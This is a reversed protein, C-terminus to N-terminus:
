KASERQTLFLEQLAWLLGSPFTTTHYAGSVLKTHLQLNKYNHSHLQKVMAAQDAVMDFDSCESKLRGCPAPHEMQGIAFYVNAKLDTHHRAYMTEQEFMTRNNYWLSTSTLIYNQFLEPQNLMVWLGFLGGYSQGALTRRQTDIRYTKEVLPMVENELFGLYARAGGTAYPKHRLDLAPTLDRERSIAGDEGQAYSLGVLIFEEFTGHNFPVRTEGSAVQFTYPGDNLYVVPYRHQANEPKDYGPPLKIYIEYSRQLKLSVLPHVFSHEIQFPPLTNETAPAITDAAFSGGSPLWVSLLFGAVSLSRSVRKKM